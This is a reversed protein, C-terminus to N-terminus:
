IWYRYLTDWLSVHHQLESPPFLLHGLSIFTLYFVKKIWKFADEAPHSAVYSVMYVSIYQHQKDWNQSSQIVTMVTHEGWPQTHCLTHITHVARLSCVWRATSSSLTRAVHPPLPIRTPPSPRWPNSPLSVCLAPTTKLCTQSSILYLVNNHKLHPQKWMASHSFVQFM